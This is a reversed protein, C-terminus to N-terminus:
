FEGRLGLQLYRPSQRSAPQGFLANGEEDLTPQGDPGTAETYVGTVTRSNFLNFCEVTIDWSTPGGVLTFGAKLDTQAWMPLEYSGDLPQEYNNYGGYYSNWHIPRYKYGSSAQTNWGLLYGLAFRDGLEWRDPRRYSGAVKFSHPIDYPLLGVEEDMQSAIDMTGSALDYNIDDRFQGYARSWTYSALMGWNENFQRNASVELATYDTYAEDPTRLRYRTDGTGDRSGVVETGEENWILNVEDDEFMNQSHEWTWTVDVGWGGGLDQSFGIDLEDSWPYILDDHVEFEPAYSYSPTESWTGTQESWPYVNVAGGRKSLLSSVSLFGM